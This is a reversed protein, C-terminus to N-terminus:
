KLKVNQHIKIRAALALIGLVSRSSSPSHASKALALCWGLTERGLMGREMIEEVRLYGIRM